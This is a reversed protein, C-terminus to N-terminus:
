KSEGGPQLPVTLGGSEAQKRAASKHEAAAGPEWIQFLRGKGVFAVRDTIGAFSLLEEPLIIRGDIDFALEHGDAFISTSLASHQESFLAYNDMGSTLQDVFDMGSCEIAKDRHSPFAVIGNFSQGELRRRFPAPVSVRGKRDIKNEFTGIFVAM